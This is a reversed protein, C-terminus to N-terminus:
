MIGNKKLFEEDFEMAFSPFPLHYGHKSVQRNFEEFIEQVETTTYDATSDKNFKKKAIARWIGKIIEPTFDLEFNELLLPVTIGSENLGEAAERFYVHVAKMQQKTIPNETKM